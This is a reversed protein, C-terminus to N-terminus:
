TRSHDKAAAFSALGKRKLIRGHHYLLWPFRVCVDTNLVAGITDNPAYHEDYSYPARSTSFGTCCTAMASTPLHYARSIAYSDVGSIHRHSNNTQLLPGRLDLARLRRTNFNQLRHFVIDLLCFSHHLMHTHAARESWDEELGAPERLVPLM